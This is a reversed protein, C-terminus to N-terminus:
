FFCFFIAFGVYRLLKDANTDYRSSVLNSPRTPSRADFETFM